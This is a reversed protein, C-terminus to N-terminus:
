TGIKGIIKKFQQTTRYGIKKQEHAKNIQKKMALRDYRSIQTGTAKHELRDEITKELIGKQEGSLHSFKTRNTRFFRSVQKHFGGVGTHHMSHGTGVSLPSKNQETGKELEKEKAQREKILKRMYIYRRDNSAEDNELANPDYSKEDNVSTKINKQYRAASTYAKTGFAGVRNISTTRQGLDEAKASLVQNISVRANDRDTKQQLVSVQTSQARGINSPIGIKGINKPTNITNLSPPRSAGFNSPLNVPM